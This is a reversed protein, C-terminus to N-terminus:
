RQLKHAHLFYLPHWEIFTSHICFTFKKNIAVRCTHTALKRVRIDYHNLTLKYMYATKYIAVHVHVM